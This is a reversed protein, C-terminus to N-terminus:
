SDIEDSNTVLEIYDHDVHFYGFEYCFYCTNGAQTQQTSTYFDFNFGKDQLFHRHVKLQGISNLKGLIRRNKRLIYNVKKVYNNPNKNRRNNYINRCTDSCFVKDARGIIEFGCEPCRKKDM